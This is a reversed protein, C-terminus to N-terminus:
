AEVLREMRFTRWHCSLFAEFRSSPWCMEDRASFGAAAAAAAAWSRRTEGDTFSPSDDSSTEIRASISCLIRRELVFMAPESELQREHKRYGQASARMQEPMRTQAPTPEPQLM